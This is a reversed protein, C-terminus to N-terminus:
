GDLKGLLKDAKLGDVRGSVFRRARAMEAANQFRRAKLRSIGFHARIAFVEDRVDAAAAAFQRQGKGPMHIHHRKARQGPADLWEAPCDRVAPNVPAAAAVHLAAHSREDGGRYLERGLKAARRADQKHNSRALLQSALPRM